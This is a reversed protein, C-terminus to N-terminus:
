RPTSPRVYQQQTLSHQIRYGHVDGEKGLLEGLKQAIERVGHIEKGTLNLASAPSTALPLSRLIMDNADGQWICNFYGMTVDIPHGSQIKQALDVLIGYRLDIAYNLRISVVPMDYQKSKYEFIRERAVCANAYEGLPTLPDSEVSGGIKVQTMPICM